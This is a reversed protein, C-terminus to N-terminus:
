LKDIWADLDEVTGIKGVKGSEVEKKAQLAEPTDLFNMIRVQDNAASNKEAQEKISATIRTTVVANEVTLSTM